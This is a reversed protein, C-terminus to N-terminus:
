RRAFRRRESVQTDVLSESRTATGFVPQGDTQRDDRVPEVAGAFHRFAIIASCVEPGPEFGFSRGQADHQPSLSFRRRQYTTRRLDISEFREISRFQQEFVIRIASQQLIQLLRQLSGFLRLRRLLELSGVRGVSGFVWFFVIAKHKRPREHRGGDNRRDDLGPLPCWLRNGLFRERSQDSM